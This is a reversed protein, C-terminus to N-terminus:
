EFVSKICYKLPIIQGVNLCGIIWFLLPWIGRLDFVPFSRFCQTLANSDYDIFALTLSSRGPPYFHLPEILRCCYAPDEGVFFADKGVKRVVQADVDCGESYRQAAFVVKNIRVEVRPRQANVAGHFVASLSGIEQAAAVPIVYVVIDDPFHQM